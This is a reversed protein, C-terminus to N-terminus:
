YCVRGYCEEDFYESSGGSGAFAWGILLFYVVMAVYGTRMITPTPRYTDGFKERGRQFAAMDLKEFYHYIAALGVIWLAYM